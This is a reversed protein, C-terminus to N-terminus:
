VIFDTWENIWLVLPASVLLRFGSLVNECVVIGHFTVTFSNLASYSTERCAHGVVTENHSFCDYSVHHTAACLGVGVTVLPVLFGASVITWVILFPTKAHTCDSDVAYMECVVIDLSSADCDVDVLTSSFFGFVDVRLMAIVIKKADFSMEQCLPGFEVFLKGSKRGPLKLSAGDVGLLHTGMREVWWGKGVLGRLSNPQIPGLELHALTSCSRNRALVAVTAGATLGGLGTTCAGGTSELLHLGQVGDVSM